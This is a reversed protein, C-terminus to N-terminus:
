LLYISSKPSITAASFVPGHRYGSFLIFYFLHRAEAAYQAMATGEGPRLAGGYDAENLRRIVDEAEV